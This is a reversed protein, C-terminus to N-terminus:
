WQLEVLPTGTTALFTPPQSTMNQAGLNRTQGVESPSIYEGVAATCTGGQWCIVIGSTQNAPVKVFLPGRLAVTPFATSNPALAIAANIATSTASATINGQGTAPYPVPLVKQQAVAGAPIALLALVLLARIM